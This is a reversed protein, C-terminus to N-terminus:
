GAGARAGAHPAPLWRAAAVRGPPPERARGPKQARLRAALPQSGRPAEHTVAAITKKM